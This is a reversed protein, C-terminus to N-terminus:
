SFIIGIGGVTRQGAIEAELWAIYAKLKNVDARQFRALYGNFMVEVEQEGLMIKHLAVRAQDLMLQLNPSASMITM